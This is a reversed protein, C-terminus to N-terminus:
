AAEHVESLHCAGRLLELEWKEFHDSGSNRLRLMGTRPEVPRINIGYEKLTKVVPKPRKRARALKLRATSYARQTLGLIRAADETSPRKTKGRNWPALIAFPQEELMEVWVGDNHANESGHHPVKFIIARGKPKETSAVIVSWGTAEDSTEELDGGLLIAYDGIQVWTVVSLINPPQAVCRRKTKKVEPVLDAIEFLFKQYQADSPSLTWVWCENGHATETAKLHYIPRNAIAAVLHSNRDLLTTIVKNIERVGSGGTITSGAEYQRVMSLFEESGLASSCCFKAESCRAVLSGMGCIHDDHWHTALVLKVAHEANVGITELYSLAAPQGTDSDLCSDIVVWYDSGLHIVVCEGYGPGLMTVEVQDADPPM